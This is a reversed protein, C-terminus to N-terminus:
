LLRLWSGKTTAILEVVDKHGNIIADHLPTHKESDIANVDAGQAILLDAMDKHGEM